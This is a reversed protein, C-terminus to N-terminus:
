IFRVVRLWMYIQAAWQNRIQCRAISSIPLTGQNRRCEAPGSHELNAQLYYFLWFLSIMYCDVTWKMPNTKKNRPVLLHVTPMPKTGNNDKSEAVPGAANLLFFDELAVVWIRTNLHNSTDKDHFFKARQTIPINQDNLRRSSPHYHYVGFSFGWWTHKRPLSRPLLSNDNMILVAM